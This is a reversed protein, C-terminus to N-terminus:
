QLQTILKMFFNLISYGVEIIGVLLYNYFTKNSYYLYTYGPDIINYANHINHTSGDSKIAITTRSYTRMNSPRNQKILSICINGTILRKRTVFFANCIPEKNIRLSALWTVEHEPASLVGGIIKGNLLSSNSVAFSCFM